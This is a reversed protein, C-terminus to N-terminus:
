QVAITVTNAAVGGISLTVPVADGSPASDPIQVNVQYLGVYGPALGSFSVNADVGGVKVIPTTTTAALPNSPSPAGLAPRNRVAGLGTCYLSVFEGRKAARSGPFVGSPAVISATGAIIAAAQGSGQSNTTYLGPAYPTVTVAVNTSLTGQTIVLTAPTPTTINFYPVQFNIQGPSVFYLPANAGGVTLSTGGLSTPWPPAADAVVTAGSLNTGYLSALSGPALADGGTPYASNVFAQSSSAPAPGISFSVANSAGVGPTPNLVDVAVRGVHEIDSASIQATLHTSDLVNTTRSIGNWRLMAGTSFNTGAVSITFGSGGANANNPSVSNIIPQLTAGPLPALIDWVSRGHTAARLTRSARQLVLSEVVVRPLGNGVTSWTGGGDSTAMVGADTGIYLTGPIDPDVVLDNVPLNPLNGSVDNWSGGGNSTKFVHGQGNNPFGSFTVYATAADIPDVVVRTVTRSPLGASRDTWSAGAGDLANNTVQLRGDNTGVYVTEPDGPAVGIASIAPSGNATGGTLDPSIAVWKGGGDRSQWLRFTGFYLTQANSRDAVLPSIFQTRDQTNIGYQSGAWSNGSTSSRRISINQCAAFTFSPLAEDIATFGGDGCTVNHWSLNGSYRQTGNDQAGALAVSSNTPHISLGPYFQTIALTDNLETWSVLPNGVDTTSYMGGDNAIYLKTGDPTFALYHEDVHMEVQNPGIFNLQNWIVGGDMSRMITLSGAAFVLNPDQPSVQIALDYWCQAVSACIDPAETNTWTAGSDTTKYIGLLNGATRAPTKQIAVYLTSPTSPSIAIAIRGVNSSPLANPGSGSLEKWTKGGDTSRYVGNVAGGNINGLAASAISGNTPDFLVATGTGTLVKTWTQAADSSRWIGTGSSCLLVNSDAPSIVLAGIRDRLFPGVINTWSNGADTSKLIGAGYYSDQAFNEEGTGVYVTDPNAPDIAIAGSALSAESDTLPKWNMGGDTTKWVGGEAAGMYVTNNDRPDIAIANVRGATVYTSGADTPQPGILTWNSAEPASAARRDAGNVAPPMRRGGAAEIRQLDTIAKLRAGAPIQGLPYARQNYFWEERAAERDDPERDREQALCAVSFASLAIYTVRHKM